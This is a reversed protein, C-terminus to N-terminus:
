FNKINVSLDGVMWVDDVEIFAKNEFKIKM